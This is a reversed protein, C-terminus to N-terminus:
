VIATYGGCLQFLRGNYSVTLFASASGPCSALSGQGGVSGGLMEPCPISKWFSGSHMCRELPNWIMQKTYMGEAKEVLNKV